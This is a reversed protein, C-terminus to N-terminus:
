PSPAPEICGRRAKRTKVGDLRLCRIDVVVRNRKISIRYTDGDRPNGLKCLLAIIMMPDKKMMGDVDFGIEDLMHLLNDLLACWATSKTYLEPYNIRLSKIYKNYQNKIVKM